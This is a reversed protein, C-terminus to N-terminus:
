GHLNAVLHEVFRELGRADVEDFRGLSPSDLDLVGVLEEGVIVPVVVESRSRADCAIHGDFEHVDAVVVTERRQAATGCVGRGMAIRICAPRGQYPGVVLEGERLLYFGAWNLDDLEDFVLSAATAFCAVPDHEGHLLADLTTALQEYDTRAHTTM